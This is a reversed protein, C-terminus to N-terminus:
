SAVVLPRLRAGMRMQCGAFASGIANEIADSFHKAAMSGAGGMSVASAAALNLM